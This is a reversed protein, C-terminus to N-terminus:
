IPRCILEMNSVVDKPKMNRRLLSLIYARTPDQLRTFKLNAIGTAHDHGARYWGLVTSVHHYTKVVIRCKCGTRKSPRSRTREPRKRIYKPKGGTGQRSCVYIRKEHWVPSGASFTRVLLLEIGHDLEEKMRWTQFQVLSNWEHTPGRRKRDCTISGNRESTAPDITEVPPAAVIPPDVPGDHRAPVDLKFTNLRSKFTPTTTPASPKSTLRLRFVPLVSMARSPLSRTPLFLLM